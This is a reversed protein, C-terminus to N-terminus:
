PLRRVSVPSHLRRREVCRACGCPPFVTPSVPVPTDEDVRVETPAGWTRGSDRSIRLTMRVGGSENSM